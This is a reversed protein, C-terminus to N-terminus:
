CITPCGGTIGERSFLFQWVQARRSRFLGACSLLYYRWMRYFRPGYKPALAPWHREFNNYWAMLTPDYHPGINQWTELVFLAEAAETVQNLSPLESNPFIYKNTWPDCVGAPLSNNRGITHLLLLGEPALLRRAHKFFTRYNRRGVHEFMGVSVIRDFRGKTNRYDELRIEVPLGRCLERGLAAQQHAITTAVVTVGHYAAAFKAFGGWGGGIDLVRMGPKLQLKRCLLDLKREQAQDLSDAGNWYACSYIMRRDLMAQYLDNGLDYHARAVEYVRRRSQLNVVHARLWALGLGVSRANLHDNLRVRLIRATFEDLAECDWEGDMYSEGAGLTGGLALRDLVNPRHLQVDWPRAGNIEIDAESLLDVLRRRWGTLHGAVRSTGQVGAAAPSANTSALAPKM